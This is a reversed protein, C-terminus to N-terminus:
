CNPATGSTVGPAVACTTFRVDGTTAITAVSETSIPTGYASTFTSATGAANCTGTVKAPLVFSATEGTVGLAACSRAADIASANAASVRAKNQQNLFAPLAISSLVGIIIVVILLEILTFGSAGNNQKSINRLHQHLVRRALLRARHNQAMHLPLSAGQMM